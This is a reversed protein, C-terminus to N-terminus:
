VVSPEAMQSSLPSVARLSTRSLLNDTVFAAFVSAIQHRSAKIMVQLFPEGARAEEAHRLRSSAQCHWM